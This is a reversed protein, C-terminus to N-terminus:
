RRYIVKLKSRYTFPALRAQQGSEAKQAIWDTHDLWGFRIINIGPSNNLGQKPPTFNITLYYGNKSKKGAQTPQAYSRNGFIQNKNSSTKVEMSFFDNTKCVIDKESASTDKRWLDSHRSEIEAPILEHLFYGIVQPSPFLDKGIYLGANGIRSQFIDDWATLCASVLDKEPLPHQSILSNTIQIFDDDDKDFYPSIYESM